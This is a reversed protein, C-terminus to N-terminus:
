AASFHPPCTGWSNRGQLLSIWFNLSPSLFPSILCIPPNNYMSTPLKKLNPHPLSGKKVMRLNYFVIVTHGHLSFIPAPDFCPKRGEKLLRPTVRKGRSYPPLHRFLTLDGGGHMSTFVVLPGPHLARYSPTKPMLPRLHALVTTIKAVTVTYFVHSAM